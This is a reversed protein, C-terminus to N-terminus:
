GLRGAPDLLAILHAGILRDPDNFALRLQESLHDRLTGHSDATTTSTATTPTSTPPAAASWM